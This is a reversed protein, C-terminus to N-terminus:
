YYRVNMSHLSLHPFFACFIESNALLIFVKPCFFAIVAASLIGLIAVDNDANNSVNDFAGLTDFLTIFKVLAIAFKVDCPDLTPVEELPIALANPVNELALSVAVLFDNENDLAM